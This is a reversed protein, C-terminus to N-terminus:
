QAAAGHGGRVCWAPFSNGDPLVQVQGGIGASFGVFWHSGAAAASATSSWFIRRTGLDFPHNPSLMPDGSGGIHLLSALEQVTPLRWGFRYPSPDPNEPQRDPGVIKKVCADSALLATYLTQSPVREWVLGTEKDLVAGSFVVKFRVSGPLLQDWTPPIQDLTKFTPAPATGPDLKPDVAFAVDTAGALVMTLLLFLKRSM